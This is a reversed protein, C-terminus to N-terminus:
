RVEKPLAIEIYVPYHDSLEDTDQDYIIGSKKISKVAVYNAWIFDIRRSVRTNYKKTPMSNQFHDNTIWYTDKYGASRIQDIVTYDIAGNNLNKRGAVGARKQREKIEDIMPQGYQATDKRSFANFDGMILIPDTQPLTAAHALVLRLEEERKKYEIASLHVVFIHIGHVNAYLYSAWMNDVVKQVNVIPYKSSIAVPNGEEASVIAYPHGYHTAFEEIRKQTFSKMEQYAVIDPNVKNVWKLYREQNTSDQFGYLTNYSVIKLHGQSFVNFSYLTAFLFFSSIISNKM